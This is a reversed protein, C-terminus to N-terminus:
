KERSEIVRKVADVRTSLDGRAIRVCEYGFAAYADEHLREFRLSEEFSIRRAATPTVFGLNEVFLVCTQYIRHAAIRALEDALNASIPYGLFQSLAYTCIPSRDFVEVTCGTTRVAHDADADGTQQQQQRRRQRQLETIDDIFSPRRWPEPEGQAQRLAIVDTAAEEIVPYGDTELRRLIATKGAGPAGTLIFRRM